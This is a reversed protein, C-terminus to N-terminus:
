SRLIILENPQCRIYGDSDTEIGIDNPMVRICDEEISSLIGSICRDDFIISSFPCYRVIQGPIFDEPTLKGRHCAGYKEIM